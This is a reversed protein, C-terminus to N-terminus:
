LSELFDLTAQPEPRRTYDPDADVSLITGDTGIVFRSSIPLTWSDDGNYKELDAGFGTYLTRVEDEVSHVLGFKDAVQNGPDSLVAFDLKHRTSIKASWEPLQPSIAVLSAGTQQM